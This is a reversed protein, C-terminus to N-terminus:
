FMGTAGTGGPMMNGGDIGQLAVENPNADLDTPGAGEPAPLGTAPDINVAEGGPQQGGPPAMGPPMMAMQMEMQHQQVHERFAMQADPSWNRFKASKLIRVHENYHVMHNQYFDVMPLPSGQVYEEFLMQETRAEAIDEDENQSVADLGGLPLMRALKASDFMGDKMFLDPIQTALQMLLNQKAVQGWPAASGEVPVIDYVGSLDSGTFSKVMYRKNPGTVSILRQETYNDQIVRLVMGALQAVSEELMALFPGFDTDDAEQLQLFAVGATVGPPPAGMSIKHVGSVQEMDTLVREREKLITSPLQPLQVPKPEFGPNHQIVEGPQNTIMGKKIGSGKPVLWKGRSLLNHHEKVQANLENYERNLGVVSELTPMAHYRGPVPVDTLHVVCPWLGEPLEQPDELLVTKNATVWYRGGPFEPTPMEHYHLVLAKEVNEQRMNSSVLHTDPASLFSNMLSEYSDLYGCDDAGIQMALHPYKSHLEHTPTAEAIIVWRVDEEYEADPNVRVQFPSYVRVGIDGEHVYIPEFDPDVSGDPLTAPTGDDRMPVEMDEGDPGEVPVTLPVVKGADSNWYPYIFANGTVITWAVAHRLQRALRLERWKAELVEEALEAANLDDPDGSAPVAKWAPRNKTVKALFTKYFALTLNVQPREKWEPAAPLSFTGTLRSVEWWQRNTLFLINQVWARYTPELAEDQDDWLARTYEAFDEEAGDERPYAVTTGSNLDVGLKKAIDIPM